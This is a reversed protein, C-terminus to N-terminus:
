EGLSIPMSEKWASLDGVRAEVMVAAERGQALDDLVVVADLLQRQAFLLNNIQNFVQKGSHNAMLM